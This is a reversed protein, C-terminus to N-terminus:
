ECPIVVAEFSAGNLVEFGGGLIIQESGEFVTNGTSLIIDGITTISKANTYTPIMDEDNYIVDSSSCIKVDFSITSNCTTINYIYINGINGNSLFQQPNTTSGFSTAGLEICFPALGIQGDSTFNGNPRYVYIEDNVGGCEVANFNGNKTPNVRYILLGSNPLSTDYIHKKNRYEIFLFESSDDIRIKYCQKSSSIPSLTYRGNQTIEPIDDIWKLYKYKMYGSTQQPYYGDEAMIDWVGIPSWKSATSDAYGHYLDPLGLTHGFEHCLVGVGYLISFDYLQLNYNYVKIGNITKNQKLSWKHPWLLTNWATTGGRIIFCINDVNGDKDTDLDLTSPIQHQIYTIAKILLSDERGKRLSETYGIPNSLSYPCYYNRPKDDKYSFTTADSPYFYSNITLINYSSKLFYQKVSNANVVSDNYMASISSIESATYDDQDSFTIYIVINNIVNHLVSRNLILRYPKNELQNYMSIMKNRDIVHNKASKRFPLKNVQNNLIKVLSDTDELVYCYYQSITDKIIIHGDKDHLWNFYEDGSAYCLVETGDPQTIILPINELPAAHLLIIGCVFFVYILIRKM